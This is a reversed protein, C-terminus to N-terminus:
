SARVIHWPRVRSPRVCPSWRVVSRAACRRGRSGRSSLRSTWSWGRSWLRCGCCGARPFPRRVTSRPQVRLCWGGRVSNRCSTMRQPESGNRPRGAGAGARMPRSLWPGPDAAQPWTGENLAGLMVLDGQQLRAEFPDCISIRPHLPRRTRISKDAVLTRYFDPYDAALSRARAHEQRDPQCLITRGM